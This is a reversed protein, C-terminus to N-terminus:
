DKFDSFIETFIDDEKKITIIGDEVTQSLIPIVFEVNSNINCIVSGNIIRQTGRLPPILIEILDSEQLSNVPKGIDEDLLYLNAKFIYSFEDEKLKIGMTEFSVMEILITDAKNFDISGPRGTYTSEEQNDYKVNVRITASGTKISNRYPIVKEAIKGYYSTGYVGMFTFLAGLLTLGSAFAVVSQSVSKMWIPDM